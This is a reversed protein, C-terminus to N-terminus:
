SVEKSGGLPAHLPGRSVLFAPLEISARGQRVSIHATKGRTHGGKLNSSSSEVPVRHIHTPFIVEWRPIEKFRCFLYRAKLCLPFTTVCRQNTGGRYKIEEWGSLPILFPLSTRAEHAHSICHIPSWVQNLARNDSNEM